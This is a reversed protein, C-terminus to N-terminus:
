GQVSDGIYTSVVVPNILKRIGRNLIHRAGERSVVLEDGIERLTKGDRFRMELAMQERDTLRSFAALFLNEKVDPMNFYSSFCIHCILNWPFRGYKKEAYEFIERESM